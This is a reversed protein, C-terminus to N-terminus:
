RATNSTASTAPTAAAMVALRDPLTPDSGLEGDFYRKLVSGVPEVLGFVEGQGGAGVRAATVVRRGDVTTFMPTPVGDPM